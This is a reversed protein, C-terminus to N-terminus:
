LCATVDIDTQENYKDFVLSQSFDSRCIKLSDFDNGYTGRYWLVRAYTWTLKLRQHSKWRGMQRYIKVHVVEGSGSLM